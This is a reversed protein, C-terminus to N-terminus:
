RDSALQELSERYVSVSVSEFGAMYNGATDIQQRDTNSLRWNFHHRSRVVLRRGVFRREPEVTLEVELPVQQREAIARDLEMRAFPPLSGPRTANLRAYWDAFQRYRDAAAAVEPSMCRARYTLVPSSLTLWDTDADLHEEFKPNAAFAFAGTLDKAHVKMAAALELLEQTAVTTKVKREPDLLVFRGRAPDFVTIEKPGLRPFDYVLGSSFLTVSRAIPEKQDGIFVDSEVRFEEARASGALWLTAIGLLGVLRSVRTM